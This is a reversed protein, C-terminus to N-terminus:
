ILKKYVKDDISHENSYFTGDYYHNLRKEIEKHADISFRFGLKFYSLYIEQFDKNYLQNYETIKSKSNGTMTMEGVVNSLTKLLKINNKIEFIFEDSGINKILVNRHIKNYDINDSDFDILKLKKALLIWEFLFNGLNDKIEFLNNAFEDFYYINNQNKLGVGYLMSINLKDKIKFIKYLQGRCVDFIDVNKDEKEINKEYWKNIQKIM